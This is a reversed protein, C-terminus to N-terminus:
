LRSDLRAEATRGLRAALDLSKEANDFDGTLIQRHATVIAERQAEMEPPRPPIENEM